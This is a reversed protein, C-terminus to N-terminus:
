PCSAVVTVVDADRLALKTTPGSTPELWLRGTPSKLVKGCAKKATGSEHYSVAVFAPAAPGPAFWTITAAAGFAVLSLVTALKAQRLDGVATQASAHRWASVTGYKYIDRPTTPYLLRFLPPIEGLYEDRPTGYAARLARYAGYLALLGAALLLAALARKWWAGDIDSFSDKGKVFFVAVLIALFGALGTRWSEAAKRVDALQTTASARLQREDELALPAARGASRVLEVRREGGKARRFVWRLTRRLLSRTCTDTSWLVWLAFPAGCGDRGEPADMHKHTCHCQATVRRLGYEESVALQEAANKAQSESMVTRIPHISVFDHHCRPCLGELVIETAGDCPPVVKVRLRRAAVDSWLARSDDDWPITPGVPPSSSSM